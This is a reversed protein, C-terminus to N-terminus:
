VCERQMYKEFTKLAADYNVAEDALKREAIATQERLDRLRRASLSLGARHERVHKIWADGREIFHTNEFIQDGDSDRHPYSPIEAEVEVPSPSGYVVKWMKTM